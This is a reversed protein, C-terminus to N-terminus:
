GSAVVSRVGFLGIDPTGKDDAMWFYGDEGYDSGWSNRFLLELRRNRIRAGFGGTIAHSWWAHGSFFPINLLTFTVAADWSLGPLEGDWWESIRYKDRETTWRADWRSPTLSYRRDVM